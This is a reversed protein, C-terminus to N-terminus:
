LFYRELREILPTLTSRDIASIAVGSYRKTIANVYEWDAKDIKNFVKLRLKTELGLGALIENVSRMRYEMNSDSIDIVELLL